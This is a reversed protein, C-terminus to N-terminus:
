DSGFLSPRANAPLSGMGINYRGTYRTFWAIENLNEVSRLKIPGDQWCKPSRLLYKRATTWIAPSDHTMTIAAIMIAQLRPRGCNIVSLGSHFVDQQIIHVFLAPGLQCLGIFFM